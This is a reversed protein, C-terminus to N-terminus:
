KRKGTQIDNKKNKDLEIAKKDMKPLKVTKVADNVLKTDNILNTVFNADATGKSNECKNYIVENLNIAINDIMSNRDDAGMASLVRAVSGMEPKKLNKLLAYKSLNLYTLKVSKLDGGTNITDKILQAETRGDLIQTIKKDCIKFIDKKMSADTKEWVSFAKDPNAKVVAKFIPDKALKNIEDKLTKTSVKELAEIEEVTIGPKYVQELFRKTVIWRALATNTRKPSMELYKDPAGKKTYEFNRCMTRSVKEMKKQIKLQKEAITLMDEFKPKEWEAQFEPTNKYEEKLADAKAKMENFSLNGYASKKGVQTQGSYYCVGVRMDYMLNCMNSGNNIIEFAMNTVMGGADARLMIQEELYTDAAKRLKSLSKAATLCDVDPDSFVKITKEIQTAFAKFQQSGEMDKKAFKEPNKMNQRISGKISGLWDGIGMLGEKYRNFGEVFKRAKAADTVVNEDEAIDQSGDSIRDKEAMGDHIISDNVDKEGMGEINIIDGPKNEIENDIINEQQKEEQKENNIINGPEKNISSSVAKIKVLKMKQNIANMQDMEYNLFEDADINGGYDPEPLEQKNDITAKFKTNSSIEEGEKADYKLGVKFDEPKIAVSDMMEVERAYDGSTHLEYHPDLNGLLSQYFLHLEPNVFARVALAKAYKIRFLYGKDKGELAKNALDTAKEGNITIQDITRVTKAHLYKFAAKTLPSYLKDFAAAAAEIEEDTADSLDLGNKYRNDKNIALQKINSNNNHAIINLANNIDKEQTNNLKDIGEELGKLSKEMDSKDKLKPDASPKSDIMHELIDGILLGHMNATEEITNEAKPGEHNKIRNEREEKEIKEWEEDTKIANRKYPLYKGIRLYHDVEAKSLKKDQLIKTIKGLGRIIKIQNQDSVYSKIGIELNNRKDGYGEYFADSLNIGNPNYISKNNNDSLWNATVDELGVEMEAAFGLTSKRMLEYTAENRIDLNRPYKIAETLFIQKRARYIMRSFEAVRGEVEEVTGAEGLVPRKDFFEVFEKGLALKEEVSNKTVGIVEESSMGKVGMLWVVFLSRMADENEVNAVGAFKMSKKFGTSNFAFFDTPKIQTITKDVAGKKKANEVEKM